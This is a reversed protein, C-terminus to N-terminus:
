TWVRKCKKCRVYNFGPDEPKTDLSHCNPCIVSFYIRAQKTKLLLYDISFFLWIVTWIPFFALLIQPRQVIFIFTFTIGLITLLYMNFKSFNKLTLWTARSRYHIGYFTWVAFSTHILHYILISPRNLKNTILLTLLNTVDYFLLVSHMIAIFRVQWPMEKLTAGFSGTVSQSNITAPLITPPESKIKLETLVTADVQNQWNVTQKCRKCTVPDYPTQPTVKV